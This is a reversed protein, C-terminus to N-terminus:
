SKKKSKAKEEKAEEEIFRWIGADILYQRATEKSKMADATAAKMTALQEEIQKDSM